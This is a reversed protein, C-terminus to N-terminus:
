SLLNLLSTVLVSFLQPRSNNTLSNTKHQQIFQSVVQINPALCEWNEPDTRCVQAAPPSATMAAEQHRLQASCLKMAVMLM